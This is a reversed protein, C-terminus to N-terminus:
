HNRKHPLSRRILETAVLTIVMTLGLITTARQAAPMDELFPTEMALRFWAFVMMAMYSRLMWTAHDHWRRRRAALWGFTTSVLAATSLLVLLAVWMAGVVSGNRLVALSAACSVLVACVYVRGTWRHLASTRRLVALLFQIAGVILAFTGAAIHLLMWYRMPWFRGYAAPTFKRLYEGADFWLFYSAILISAPIAVQLLRNRTEIVMFRNDIPRGPL